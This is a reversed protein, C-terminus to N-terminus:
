VLAANIEVICKHIETLTNNYDAETAGNGDENIARENKSQFRESAYCHGDWDPVERAPSCFRMLRMSVAHINSSIFYPFVGLWKHKYVKVWVGEPWFDLRVDLSVYPNDGKGEEVPQIQIQIQLSDAWESFQASQRISEALAAFRTVYKRRRCYYLHRAMREYAEENQEFINWCLDQIESSDTMTRDVHRLFQDIFQGALPNALPQCRRFADSVMKYSQYYIPVRTCALNATPSDRGAPTLYVIARHEYNPFLDCLSKQYRAVQAPQDLAHIKNEIAVVLRLDPFDLLVDINALERRVKAKAGATSELVGTAVPQAAGVCRCNALSAMYDDRFISGLGHPEHASLFTALIRSHLLEKTSIGMVRFPDFMKTHQALAIFEKSFPMAALAPAIQADSSM